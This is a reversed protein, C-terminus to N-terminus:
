NVGTSRGALTGVVQALQSPEVPKPLHVQYGASLVRTTDDGAAFGTLAAAPVQGGRDPGLARVKRILAYGDEGPMGIDSVLVDPKERELAAVAEGVTALATVDAGYQRLSVSLFDRMDLEDDVVMVKVGDLRMPATGAPDAALARGPSRAPEVREEMLPLRVTFTAGQDPGHSEANVTGGHLEVLHRVIALGLGLGGYKRTSTSDAQRFRDFVYPLFDPSIGKGNDRVSLQVHTGVRGLQVEMRGGKPTFKVANSALNWVVQQLRDPDALVKSEIPDLKVDLHIEKAEASPRVADLGAEVVPVLEIPRVEV